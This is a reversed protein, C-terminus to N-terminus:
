QLSKSWEAIIKINEPLLKAEPHLPLYFWLPMEGEEVEEGCEKIKHKKRKDNYTDWVSFNMHKRGDNVDSVVLWSMPAVYSYWPWKTENSHCDFCSRHLIAMVQEPAEITGTVPPNTRAVPVFQLLIFIVILIWFTQALKHKM